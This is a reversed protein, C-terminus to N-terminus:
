DKTFSLHMNNNRVARALTELVYQDRANPYVWIDQHATNDRVSLLFAAGERSIKVRRNGNASRIGSKIFGLAIKRVDACKEAVDCMIAAAPIVTTHSGTYKGGSRHGKSSM